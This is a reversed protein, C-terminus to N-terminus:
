EAAQSFRPRGQQHGFTKLPTAALEVVDAAAPKGTQRRNLLVFAPPVFFFSVVTSLLVGGAIAMAFPPWFGGGAM